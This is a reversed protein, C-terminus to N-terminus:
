YYRGTFNCLSDFVHEGIFWVVRLCIGTLQWMVQVAIIANTVLGAAGMWIYGTRYYGFLPKTDSLQGFIIRAPAVFLTLALIVTAITSPVALERILIRNLVGFVMVSMMGLGMQFLGLRIMTPLKVKPITKHEVYDRNMGAGSLDGTTM